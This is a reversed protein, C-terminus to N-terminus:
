DTDTNVQNRPRYKTSPMNAGGKDIANSYGISRSTSKNQAAAFKKKAVSAKDSAVSEEDDSSDVDEMFEKFNKM